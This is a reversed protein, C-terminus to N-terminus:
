GCPLVSLTVEPPAGADNQSKRVRARGTRFVLLQGGHEVVAIAGTMSESPTLRVPVLATSAASSPVSTAVFVDNDFWDPNDGWPFGGLPNWWRRDSHRNRADVWALVVHGRCEVAAVDPTDSSGALAGPEYGAIRLPATWGNAARRAQFLGHSAFFVVPAGDVLSTSIAAIDGPVQVVQGASSWSGGGDVTAASRIDARVEINTVKTGPERYEVLANDAWFALWRDGQRLLRPRAGRFDQLAAITTPARRGSGSWRLSKLAAQGGSGSSAYVVLLGGGDDVAEFAGAGADEPRLLDGLDRFLNGGVPLWWHHLRGGALVHVGDDMAVVQPRDLGGGEAVLIRAGWAPLAGSGHRYVVRQRRDAGSWVHTRERWAVHLVGTADTALDLGDIEDDATLAGDGTLAISPPLAVPQAGCGSALAVLALVLTRFGRFRMQPMEM